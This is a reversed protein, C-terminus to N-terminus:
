IVEEDLKVSNQGTSIKTMSILIKFEIVRSRRRDHHHHDVDFPKRITAKYGYRSLHYFYYISVTCYKLDFIVNDIVGIVAISINAYSLKKVYM